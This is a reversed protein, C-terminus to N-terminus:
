CGKVSASACLGRMRLALTDQNQKKEKEQQKFTFTRCKKTQQKGGKKKTNSIYKM